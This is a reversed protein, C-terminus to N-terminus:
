QSPGAKLAPSTTYRPPLDAANEKQPDASAPRPTDCLVNRVPVHFLKKGKSGQEILEIIAECGDENNPLKVDDMVTNRFRGHVVGGFKVPALSPNQKSTWTVYVISDGGKSDGIFMDYKTPTKFVEIANQCVKNCETSAAALPSCVFAGFASVFGLIAFTKM